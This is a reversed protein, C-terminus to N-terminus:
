DYKGVRSVLLAYLFSLTPQIFMFMLELSSNESMFCYFLYSYIYLLCLPLLVDHCLVDINYTFLGRDKSRLPEREVHSQSGGCTGDSLYSGRGHKHTNTARKSRRIKKSNTLFPNTTPTRQWPLRSGGASPAVMAPSERFLLWHLEGVSYVCVTYISNCPLLCAPLSPCPLLAPSYFTPPVSPAIPPLSPPLSSTLCPLPSPSYFAPPASPPLPPLPLSCPSPTLPFLPFSPSFSPPLSCPSPPLPFLPPLLLSPSLLPLSLPHLSAVCARLTLPPLSPQPLTSSPFLRPLFPALCPRRSPPLSRPLSQALFPHLLPALFHFKLPPIRLICYIWM